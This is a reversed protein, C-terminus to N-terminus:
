KFINKLSSISVADASGVFVPLIFIYPLILAAASDPQSKEELHNMLLPVFKPSHENPVNKKNIKILVDCVIAFFRMSYKPCTVIHSFQKIIYYCNKNDNMINILTNQSSDFQLISTFSINM